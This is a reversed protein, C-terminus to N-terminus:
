IPTRSSTPRRRRRIASRRSATRSNALFQSVQDRHVGWGVWNHAHIDVYGPMITKGGVDIVKAGEPIPVTGSPASPRRHPQRHRRHRREHIVEDGKMTILRAGRLVVTGRPKDKRATIAVDFRQAEYSSRRSRRRPTPTLRPVPAPTAGAPHAGPRWRRGSPEARAVSDRVLSDALALDYSFFSRGISYFATRSDTPWGIFDGGVKTLRATPVVSSATVSVTPAQGVVPPVTIM